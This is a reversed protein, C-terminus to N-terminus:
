TEEQTTAVDLNFSIIDVVIVNAMLIREIEGLNNLISDYRKDVRRASNYSLSLM